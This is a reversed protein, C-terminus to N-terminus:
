LEHSLAEVLALGDAPSNYAQISFRLLKLDNWAILPIEIRYRDYLTSKLAELDTDKPLQMSMMQSYFLDSDPYIPHLGIQNQLQHRLKSALHHCAARVESWHYRTQFEIAAPISLYASIDCPGIWDFLDQFPSDSPAESEYGWSVILPEVLHQLAPRAYLFASGKPACLWKHANSTYFDAGLSDLDLDMQGICHAGDIITLIGCERARQCIERVPFTLATPSTIHSLFLIRTRETVGSWLQEIMEESSRVPVAVPQNIYRFGHKRALFRWTRDMAGYEHDSALVEDQDGLQISRAVINIATTANPTFILNDAHTGIFGGLSQRTEFLLSHARRGLFEVPQNELERQWRQYVEFVPRPCAGFSGHNLFIVNPDLLFQDRYLPLLKDTM